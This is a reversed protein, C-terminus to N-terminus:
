SSKSDKLSRLVERLKSQISLLTGFAAAGGVALSTIVTKVPVVHLCAACVLAGLMIRVGIKGSWPHVPDSIETFASFTWVIRVLMSVTNGIFISAPGLSSTLWITGVLATFSVWQAVFSKRIKGSDVVAFFYAELCGNLAFVFIMACFIKLLPAATTWRQGYLIALVPEALQPGFSLAMAGVAGEIVLVSKLIKLRDKKQTAFATFAIDEIPAFVLRLVLSGLNSAVSVLGIEEPTLFTITLVREGEALFMKQTGMAIMELLPKYVTRIAKVSFTIKPFGSRLPVLVLICASVLQSLAFALSGSNMGVLVALMVWSRMLGSWTEARNRVDLKKGIAAHYFLLIEAFSELELSLVIISIVLPNEREGFFTFYTFTIGPIIALCTVLAGATIVQMGLKADELRLACRRFGEKLLFLSLSLVLQFNVSVKGYDEVSSVRVTLIGIGFALLKLFLSTSLSDQLAQGVSM